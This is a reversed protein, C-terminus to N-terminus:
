FLCVFMCGVYRSAIELGCMEKEKENENDSEKQDDYCLDWADGFNPGFYNMRLLSFWEIKGQKPKSVLRKISIYVCECRSPEIFTCLLVCVCLSDAFAFRYTATTSTLSAAKEGENIYKISQIRRVYVTSNQPKM